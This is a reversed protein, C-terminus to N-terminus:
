GCPYARRLAELVADFAFGTAVFDDSMFELLIAEPVRAPVINPPICYAFAQRTADRGAEPYQLSAAGALLDVGFFLQM